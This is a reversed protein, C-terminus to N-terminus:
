GIQDCVSLFIFYLASECRTATVNIQIVERVHKPNVEFKVKFNEQPYSIVGKM